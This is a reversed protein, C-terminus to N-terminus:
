AALQNFDAYFEDTILSEISLDELPACPTFRYGIRLKGTALQDPTNADTLYAEAGIILGAAKLRRFLANISAVIDRALAPTLPRDIYPFVGDAITDRLVQNTRVASEFAFRQDSACGRNGWFRYGDRRILCTIDAGNLLGAETNEDQLDWSVPPTIGVVGAVPVNSITKHFGIEQDLRARLGVARAAAFSPEVAKTFPNAAQFDGFILFLERHTFNGRFATAAAVTRVPGADFYAIANLRSALLGLAEGVIQDAAGPVALIRPRVGTVSEADLLAQMGTRSGAAGGGVLNAVLDAAIDEPNGGQGEAVRVVVGVARAQDGIAKLSTALSGGDGAAQIAAEIDTVLVPTDLPFVEDDAAPATAVIGWVATAAIALMLPGAAVEIIKVGHRRPTLAM